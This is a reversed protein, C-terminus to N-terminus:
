WGLHTVIRWISGARARALRLVEVNSVAPRGTLQGCEHYLLVIELPLQFSHLRLLLLNQLLLGLQQQLLRLQVFRVGSGRRVIALLTVASCARQAAVVVMAVGASM